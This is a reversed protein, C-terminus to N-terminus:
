GLGFLRNLGAMEVGGADLERGALGAYDPGYRYARFVWGMSVGDPRTNFVPNWWEWVVEGGKTVEFLRGATGECVLTNGNPLRSVGSIHGSFFQAPPSGQYSWVVEDTKPDVEIVKSTSMGRVRHMGNDFIQVNGNAMWTAHHQHGTNPAGYRWTMEGAASIIAVRSNNRCSIVVEGEANVDVSNVHTWEVRAELPCIADKRPDFLKWTEVRRVEKGGADIEVIDDGLMLGLKEKPLKSGGRVVKSLEETMEVWVPFVTHGNALRKFDHHIGVDRHEWVVEGDWAVERLMSGNAGLRRVRQEFPEPESGVVPPPGKPLLDTEVGLVLLNGNELLEAKSPRLGEFQWRHVFRGDMDILFASDGALPIALTYGKFSLQPRHVTLGLGQATSWGM